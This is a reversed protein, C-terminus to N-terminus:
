RLHLRSDISFSISMQTRLHTETEEATINLLVSIFTIGIETEHKRNDHVKHYM